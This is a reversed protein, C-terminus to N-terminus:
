EGESPKADELMLVTSPRYYTERTFPAAVVPEGQDDEEAPLPVVRPSMVAVPLIGYISNMIRVGHHSLPDPYTACAFRLGKLQGQRRFLNGIFDGSMSYSQYAVDDRIPKVLQLSELIRRTDNQFVVGPGNHAVIRNAHIAGVVGALYGGLSHGTLTIQADESIYGSRKLATVYADCAGVYETLIQYSGKGIGAKPLLPAVTSVAAVAARSATKTALMTGGAGTVLKLAAGFLAAPGFLLAATGLGAAAVVTKGPNQYAYSGVAAAADVLSQGTSQIDEVVGDRISTHREAGTTGTVKRQVVAEGISMALVRVSSTLDVNHYASLHECVSQISSNLDDPTKLDGIGLDVILNHIKTDPDADLQTGRIAIFIKGTSMDMFALISCGKPMAIGMNAPPPLQVLHHGNPEFITANVERLVDQIPRNDIQYMLESLAGTEMVEAKEEPCSFLYRNEEPIRVLAEEERETPICPCVFRPSRLTSPPNSVLLRTAEFAPRPAESLCPMINSCVSELSSASDLGLSRLLDSHSIVQVQSPSVRFVSCSVQSTLQTVSGIGLAPPEISNPDEPIIGPLFFPLIDLKLSGTISGANQM